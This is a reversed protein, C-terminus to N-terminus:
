PAARSFCHAPLPVSPEFGEREALNGGNVEEFQLTSLDFQLVEVGDDSRLILQGDRLLLQGFYRQPRFGQTSAYCGILLLRNNIANEDM